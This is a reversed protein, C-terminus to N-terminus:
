GEKKGGKGPRKQAGRYSGSHCAPTARGTRITSLEKKFVEVPKQMRDELNKLLSPDIM